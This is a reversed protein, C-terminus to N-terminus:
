SVSSLKWFRAASALQQRLTFGELRLASPSFCGSVKVELAAADSINRWHRRWQQPGAGMRFDFERGPLNAEARQHVPLAAVQMRKSEAWREM